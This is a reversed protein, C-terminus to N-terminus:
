ECCCDNISNLSGATTGGEAVRGGVTRGSPSESSLFLYKYLSIRGKQLGPVSSRAAGAGHVKRWDNNCQLASMRLCTYVTTM